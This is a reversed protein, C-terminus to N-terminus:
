KNMRELYAGIRTDIKIIDGENIFLPVNVVGGTELKAPKTGGSATNGREGPDTKVVELEVFFPLDVNMPKGKYFLAEIEENEKLFDTIDKGLSDGEISIQDYSHNDMFVYSEGDKYLYQMKKIEIDPKGVKEGSRFTHDIVQGTLLSKLRTRVFAGGKGPKVHQFEVITYPTGEFEIKLGNRFNSTDYM